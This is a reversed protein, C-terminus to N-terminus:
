SSVLSRLCDELNHIKLVVIINKEKTGEKKALNKSACSCKLIKLIM